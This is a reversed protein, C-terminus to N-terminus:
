SEPLDDFELAPADPADVVEPNHDPHPLEPTPTRLPPMQEAYGLNDQQDLMGDVEDAREALCGPDPALDDPEPLTRPFVLCTRPLVLRLTLSPYWLAQLLSWIWMWQWMAIMMMLRKVRGARYLALAIGMHGGFHTLATM